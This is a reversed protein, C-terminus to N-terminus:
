AKPKLIVGYLRLSTYYTDSWCAWWVALYRVEVFIAFFVFVDIRVQWHIQYLMQGDRGMMEGCICEAAWVDTTGPLPRPRPMSSHESDGGQAPAAFTTRSDGSGLGQESSGVRARKNSSVNSTSSNIHSTAVSSSPASMQAAEAAKLTLTRTRNSRRPPPLGEASALNMSISHHEEPLLTPTVADVVDDGTCHFANPITKLPCNSQWVSITQSCGCQM